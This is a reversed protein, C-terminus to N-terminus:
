ATEFQRGSDGKTVFSFLPFAMEGRERLGPRVSRVAGSVKRSDIDKSRGSFVVEIKLVVDEDADLDHVLNVDLIRVETFDKEITSWIFDRIKKDIATGAGMAPVEDESSFCSTAFSLVM